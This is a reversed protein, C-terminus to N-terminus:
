PVPLQYQYPYFRCSVLWMLQNSLWNCQMPSDELFSTRSLHLQPCVTLSNLTSVIVVLVESQVLPQVSIITHDPVSLLSTWYHLSNSTCDHTLRHQRHFFYSLGTLLSTLSQFLQSLQYPIYPNYCVREAKM